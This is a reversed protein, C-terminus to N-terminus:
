YRLKDAVVVTCKAAYVKGGRSDVAEMLVIYRGIPVLRGSDNRGDWNLVTSNSGAPHNGALRRIRFGRLNYIDVTVRAVPVPLNLYVSTLQNRFPNFPNPEVSVDAGTGPSASTLSNPRGATHEAPDACPGWNDADIGSVTLDIREWSRGAKKCAEDPYDIEDSKHGAADSLILHDGDNNMPPLRDMILFLTTPELNLVDITANSKAAVLYKGPLLIIDIESLFGENGAEDVIRWGKLNVNSATENYLELWEKGIEPRPMIESIVVAPLESSNLLVAALIILSAILSKM